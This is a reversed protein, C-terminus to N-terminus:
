RLVARFSEYHDDTYYVEGARGTVLRRAGRSGEAPTPVTYERYHGRPQKPLLREFNGFVTGDQRYPYPGGAEILELTHRAQAPLAGVRVTAMGRAWGPTQQAVATRTAGPTEATTGRGGTCASLALLVSLFVAGLTRLPIRGPRQSRM